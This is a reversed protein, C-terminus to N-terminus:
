TNTLYTMVFSVKEDESFNGDPKSITLLTNKLSVKILNSYNSLTLSRLETNDAVASYPVGLCSIVKMTTDVSTINIRVTVVNHIKTYTYNGAFKEFGAGMKITGSGTEVNSADYKQSMKSDTEEKTYHNKELYALSPYQAEKYSATGTTVKNSNDEKDYLLDDIKQSSYTTKESPAEDDFLKSSYIALITGEKQILTTATPVSTMDAGRLSVTDIKGKLLTDIKNSNYTTTNSSTDSFIANPLDETKLYKSLDDTVIVWDSWGNASTYNRKYTYNNRLIMFQVIYSNTDVKYNLNVVTGSVAGTVPANDVTCGSLNVVITDTIDGSNLNVGEGSYEKFRNYSTTAKTMLEDLNEVRSLEGVLLIVRQLKALDTNEAIATSGNLVSEAVDVSFTQSTIIEEGETLTIECNLRGPTNLMTDTLEVIIKNDETNVICKNVGKVMGYLSAKATATFTNEMPIIEGNQTLTVDIFRTGADGQHANVVLTNKNNVDLTIEQHLLNM